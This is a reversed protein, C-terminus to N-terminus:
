RIGIVGSAAPNAAICDSTPFTGGNSIPYGGVSGTSPPDSQVIMLPGPKLPSGSDALISEGSMWKAHGDMFGLNSGGMHRAWQKRFSADTLGQLPAGCSQTDPCNVWDKSCPSCVLTCQEPYATLVPSWLDMIVGADACVVWQSPDPAQGPNMGPNKPIGISQVFGGGVSGSDTVALGQRCSDTVSGGWGTPYAGKCPGMWGASVGWNGENDRLYQLWNPQGFIFAAGKSVKASPCRWVERSKIYEDLIVPWSLYPNSGTFGTFCNDGTFDGCGCRGIAAGLYDKVEQNTEKPPFRDYDTLYIQFAMAINKVNALCQTKRASERARAFVPFLM